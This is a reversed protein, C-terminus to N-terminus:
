DLEILLVAPGTSTASMTSTGAGASWQSKYTRVGAAAPTVAPSNFNCNAAYGTGPATVAGHGIEVTSTADNISVDTGNAAASNSVFRGSVMTAKIKRGTPVNVVCSLGPVDTLSASAITQNSTIIRQGLVRRNPDRPCILNGLSDTVAYPISSSIPLVKSEQGQNVSAVAAITTAGTVIIAIRVSNAALSPSAANNLATTYVLTGTGDGNDLVDVYTDTSAAFTRATVLAVSIRRGNIYIIMATMSANRNVGYSDGSWVGGSAVHDFGVEAWRTIPSASGTPINNFFLTILDSILVRKTLTTEVDYTPISDTTTPSADQPLQSIKKQAM